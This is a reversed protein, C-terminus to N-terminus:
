SIGERGKGAQCGYTQQRCRLSQKQNQLHTRQYRKKLNWMYTIDYLTQRERNSKSGETHCYRAQARQFWLFLFAPKTELYGGWGWGGLLPLIHLCVAIRGYRYKRGRRQKPPPHLLCYLEPQYKSSGSVGLDSFHSMFHPFKGKGSGLSSEQM